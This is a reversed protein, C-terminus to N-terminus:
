LTVESSVEERKKRKDNPVDVETMVLETVSEFGLGRLYERSRGRPVDIQFDFPQGNAGKVWITVQDPGGESKLPIRIQARQLEVSAM